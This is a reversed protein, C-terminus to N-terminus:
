SDTAWPRNGDTPLVSDRMSSEPVSGDPPRRDLLVTAPAFRIM